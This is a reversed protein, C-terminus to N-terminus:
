CFAKLAESGEGARGSAASHRISWPMGLVDQSRSGNWGSPFEYAEEGKMLHNEDTRSVRAERGSGLGMNISSLWPYPERTTIGVVLPSSM